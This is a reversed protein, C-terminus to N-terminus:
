RPRVVEARQRRWHEYRDEQAGSRERLRLAALVAAIEHPSATGRVVIDATNM